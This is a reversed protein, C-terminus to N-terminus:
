APPTALHSTPYRLLANSLDVYIMRTSCQMVTPSGSQEPYGFLALSDGTGKTLTYQGTDYGSVLGYGIHNRFVPGGSDGGCIAGVDPLRPNAPNAPNAPNSFDLIRGTGTFTGNGWTTRTTMIVVGCTSGTSRGTKCLDDGTLYDSRHGVSSSIKYALDTVTPTGSPYTSALKVITGDGDTWSFANIAGSDGNYQSTSSSHRPGIYASSVGPTVNWGNANQKTRYWYAEEVVCHGATLIYHLNADSVINFGATCMQEARQTSGAPVQASFGAIEIGGIHGTCRNTPLTTSCAAFQRDTRSVPTDVETIHLIGPRAAQFGKLVQLIRAHEDQDATSLTVELANPMYSTGEVLVGDDPLLANLEDSAAFLADVTYTAPEVDILRGVNWRAAAAAIDAKPDTLLVTLRGTTRSQVVGGAFIDPRTKELDETFGAYADQWQSREAAEEISIKAWKAIYEATPDPQAQSGGAPDDDVAAAQAGAPVLVSLLCM